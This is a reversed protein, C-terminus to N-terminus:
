LHNPIDIFPQTPITPHMHVSPMAVLPTPVHISPTPITQPGLCQEYVHDTYFQSNCRSQVKQGIWDENRDYGLKCPEINEDLSSTTPINHIPINPFTQVMPNCQQHMNDIDVEHGEHPTVSVFLPMWSADNGELFFIIDEDDM